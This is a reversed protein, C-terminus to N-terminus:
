LSATDNRHTLDSDSKRRARSPNEVDTTNAGGEEIPKKRALLLAHKDKTDFIRVLAARCIFGDLGNNLSHLPNPKIPVFTGEALSLAHVKVPAM